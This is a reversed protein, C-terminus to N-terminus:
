NLIDPKSPDRDRDESTPGGCEELSAQEQLWRISELNKEMEEINFSEFYKQQRREFEKMQENAVGMCNEWLWKLATFDGNMARAFLARRIFIMRLAMGRKINKRFRRDLIEESCNLFIAM